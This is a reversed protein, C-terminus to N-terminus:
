SKLMEKSLLTFMNEVNLSDKASTKFSALLSPYKDFIDSIDISFDKNKDIKNFAIIAPIDQKNVSYFDELHLILDEKIGISSIDSVIIVGSAGRMYTKNVRKVKNVAGEIDWILLMLIEDKIQIEKKSIKMGITSIYKDSFSNEVFRRILSTKGVSFSGILIIKKQKKNM